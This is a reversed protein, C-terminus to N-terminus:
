KKPNNAFRGAFLVAGTASETIFYLFPHDAHFTVLKPGSGISTNKEMGASSVAAAESGKEDVKIAADQKVFSLCLADNSMASFDAAGGNFASPMGMKSLIDNLEISFKTEFKPFWLDVLCTGMNGVLAELSGASRLAATVASVTVGERPLLVTMSFAGNGYPLRVAQVKDTEGYAFEAEQMMMSVTTKSARDENYFASPTTSKSSFSKVWQSKFYLANLLYALMDPSTEDLIRPVLGNTHDSCWKNIKDASGKTDSFDLNSVEAEYYLKVASVYSDRLSYGKDVYIASALALTTKNDLHPLQCMISSSFKNVDDIEGKGYGLVKIIEDATEGKAGNLIMGLLLQMSLPSVIYDKDGDANVQDIYNFTFANGKNLLETAKTSLRLCGLDEGMDGPDIEPGVRNCSTLSFLLACAAAISYILKM